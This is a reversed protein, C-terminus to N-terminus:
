AAGVAVKYEQVVMNIVTSTDLIKHNHLEGVRWMDEGCFILGKDLNGLQAQILAERICYIGSCEKLCNICKAGVTDYGGKVFVNNIGRGPFGTPSKVQVIDAKNVKLCEYKWTDDANSETTVAFRSGMQVGSAGLNKIMNYADAGTIVGGAGIIPIKLKGVLQPVIDTVDDELTGLHGGAKKGEFIVASAGLKESILALRLSSVIPVYPIGAEGCIKFVNKSFGAGSVILDMRMKIALDVLKEFDSLAFMINVGVIGDTMRRVLLMEEEAEKLTLASLAILGIGGHNAVAAALKAMSIKIAMGGQIISLDATQNGIQLNPLSM